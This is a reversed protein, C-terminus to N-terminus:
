LANNRAPAYNAGLCDVVDVDQLSGHRGHHIRHMSEGQASIVDDNVAVM